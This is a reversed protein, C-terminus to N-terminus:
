SQACSMIGIMVRFDTHILALAGYKSRAFLSRYECCQGRKTLGVVPAKSSALVRDKFCSRYLPFLVGASMGVFKTLWEKIARAQIVLTKWDELKM